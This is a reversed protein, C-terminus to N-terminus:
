LLNKVDNTKENESNRRYEKDQSDKSNIKATSINAFTDRNVTRVDVNKMLNPEEGTM